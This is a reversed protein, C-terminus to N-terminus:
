SPENLILYKLFLIVLLSLQILVLLGTHRRFMAACIALTTLGLGLNMSADIIANQRSRNGWYDSFPGEWGLTLCGTGLESPSTCIPAHLATSLADAFAFLLVVCPLLPLISKITRWNGSNSSERIM